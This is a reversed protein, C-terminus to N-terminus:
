FTFCCNQSKVEKMGGGGGVRAAVSGTQCCAAFRHRKRPPPQKCHLLYRQLAGHRHRRPRREAARRGPQGSDHAHATSLLPVDREPVDAAGGSGSARAQLHAVSRGFYSSDCAPAPTSLTKKNKKKSLHWIRNEFYVSLNKQGINEKKSCIFIPEM